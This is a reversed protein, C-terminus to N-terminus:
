MTKSMIYSYELFIPLYFVFTWRELVVVTLMKTYKRGMKKGIMGWGGM